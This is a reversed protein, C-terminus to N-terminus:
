PTDGETGAPADGSGRPREGPLPPWDDTISRGWRKIGTCLLAVLSHPNVAQDAKYQTWELAHEFVDCLFEERRADGAAAHFLAEFTALDEQSWASLLRLTFVRAPAVQEEITRHDDGPDTGYRTTWESGQAVTSGTVMNIIVKTLSFLMADDFALLADLREGPVPGPLSHTM